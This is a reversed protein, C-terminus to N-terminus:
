FREKREELNIIDSRRMRKNRKILPSMWGLGPRKHVRARDTDRQTLQPLLDTFTEVTREQHM